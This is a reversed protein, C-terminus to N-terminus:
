NNSRGDVSIIVRNKKKPIPMSISKAAGSFGYYHKTLALIKFGFMGQDIESNAM